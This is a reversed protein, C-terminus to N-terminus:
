KWRYYDNSLTPSLFTYTTMSVNSFGAAICVVWGWGGDPAIYNPGLDSKDRRKPKKNVEGGGSADGLKKKDVM